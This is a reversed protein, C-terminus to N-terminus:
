AQGPGVRFCIWRIHEDLLGAAMEASARLMADSKAPENAWEGLEVCTQICAQKVLGYALIFGSPVPRSSYPFNVMARATHIGYLAETPIDMRGLSDQEPRYMQAMDAISM